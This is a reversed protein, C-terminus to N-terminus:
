ISTEKMYEVSQKVLEQLVDLDVYELKKTCLCSKGLKYKGLKSLLDAYQEFGPM